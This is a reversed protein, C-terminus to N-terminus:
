MESYYDVNFTLAYLEALPLTSTDVSSGLHVVVSRPIVIHRDVRRGCASLKAFCDITNYEELISSLTKKRRILSGNTINNRYDTRLCAQFTNDSLM